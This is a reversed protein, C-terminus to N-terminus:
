PSPRVAGTLLPRAHLENAADDSLPWTASCWSSREGLGWACSPTIQGRHTGAVLGPSLPSFPPTGPGTPMRALLGLVQLGHEATRGPQPPPWTPTDTYRHIPAATRSSAPSPRSAVHCSAKGADRSAAQSPGGAWPRGPSPVRPLERTWVRSQRSAPPALSLPLCSPVKGSGGALSFRRSCAIGAGM